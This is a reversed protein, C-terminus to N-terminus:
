EPPKINIIANIQLIEGFKDDDQSVYLIPTKSKLTFFAGIVSVLKQGGTIDFAIEKDEFNYKNEFDKEIEEILGDLKTFNEFSEIKNIFIGDDNEGLQNLLCITIFKLIYIKGISSKKEDKNETCIFRIHELSKSNKAIILLPVAWNWKIKNIKKLWDVFNNIIEKDGNNKISSSFILCKQDENKEKEVYLYIEKINKQKVLNLFKALSDINKIDEDQLFKEENNNDIYSFDINRTLISIPLILAKFSDDEMKIENAPAYFKFRKKEKYLIYISLLLLGLLIIFKIILIWLVNHFCYDIIDTLYNGVIGALILWATILFALVFYDYRKKSKSGPTNKM